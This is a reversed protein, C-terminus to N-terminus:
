VRLPRRLDMEGMKEWSPTSLGDVSGGAALGGRQREDIAREKLLMDASRHCSPLLTARQWCCWVSSRR